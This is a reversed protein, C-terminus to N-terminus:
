GPPWTFKRGGLIHLHLHFVTQCASAGNNIVLRFDDAIELRAAVLNTSLMLHALIAHDEKTAKSLTPIPKKPILLVHIPAAPNIDHIAICIEDEFIIDAKIERNIIKTFISTADTM